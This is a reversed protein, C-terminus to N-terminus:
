WKIEEEQPEVEGFKGYNRINQIYELFFLNIKYTKTILDPYQGIHLFMEPCTDCKVFETWRNLQVPRISREIRGWTIGIINKVEILRVEGNKLCLIDHFGSALGDAHYTKWGYDAAQKRIKMEVEHENKM